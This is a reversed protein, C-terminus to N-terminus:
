TIILIFFFFSYEAQTLPTGEEGEDGRFVTGGEEGAGGQSSSLSIPTIPARTKGGRM